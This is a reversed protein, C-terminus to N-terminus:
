VPDILYMCIHQSNQNYMHNILFINYLLSIIMIYNHIEKIYNEWWISDFSCFGTGVKILNPTSNYSASM